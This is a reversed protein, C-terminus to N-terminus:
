VHARGIKLRRLTLFKKLNFGNKIFLKVFDLRNKLIALYMLEDLSVGGFNAAAAKEPTFIFNRAIDVRDWTLALELQARYNEQTSKLLARLIVLDISMNPDKVDIVFTSLLHKYKPSFIREIQEYMKKHDKGKFKTALYNMIEMKKNSDFIQRNSSSTLSSSSSLKLQQQQQDKITTKEVFEILDCMLDALRGTEDIFICPTANEVASLVNSLTIPGGGAVVQIIPIPELRKGGNTTTLIGSAIRSELQSRFDVEGGFENLKANDVLIFHTHNPDLLTSKEPANKLM